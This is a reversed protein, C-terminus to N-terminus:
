KKTTHHAPHYNLIWQWLKRRRGGREEASIRCPGGCSKTNGFGVGFQEVGGHDSGCSRRRGWFESPDVRLDIFASEDMARFDSERAPFLGRQPGSRRPELFVGGAVDSIKASSLASRRGDEDRFSCLSRSRSIGVAEPVWIESRVDDVDAKSKKRRFLHKIRWIGGGRSRRVEVCSSSSRQLFIGQEPPKQSRNRPKDPAKDNEILFSVRAVDMASCYSNRHSSSSVGDSCSCSCSSLRQEGCDSCVLRLLRDKLCDSCIGVAASQNPHKRCPTESSASFNFDQPGDTVGAKGRDRM